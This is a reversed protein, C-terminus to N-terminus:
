VVTIFYRLDECKSAVHLCAAGVIQFQARTSKKISLYRDLLWVALSSSRDCMGFVDVVEVLWDVLMARHSTLIEDQLAM